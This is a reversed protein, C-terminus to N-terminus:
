EIIYQDFREFNDMASELYRGGNVEIIKKSGANGAACTIRVEEVGLERAKEIGLRLIERGYGKFRMKPPVDYGINGHVPIRRHRIRIIGRIETEGDDVLWYLTSPVDGEPLEKGMSTNELTKLYGEYDELAGEYMYYYFWEENKKYDEIVKIFTEKLRINPQILKM